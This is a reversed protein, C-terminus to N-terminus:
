QIAYELVVDATVTLDGGTLLIEPRLERFAAALASVRRREVETDHFHLDSFFAIRKGRMATDPSPLIFRRM